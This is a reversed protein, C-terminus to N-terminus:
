RRRKRGQPPRRRQGQERGEALVLDIRREETDVSSVQVRVRQGVRFRRGTNEGMLMFREESWAYFDDGLSSVHVLGEVYWADLLVFFGFSRVDSITGDFSGGLHRAMFQVKKLLISDREATVAVRERESAHRSLARLRDV